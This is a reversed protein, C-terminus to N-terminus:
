PRVIAEGRLGQDGPAWAASSCSFPYGRWQFLARTSVSRGQWRGFLSLFLDERGAFLRFTFPVIAEWMVHMPLLCAMVHGVLEELLAVTGYSCCSYM